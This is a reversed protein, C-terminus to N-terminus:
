NLPRNFSGSPVYDGSLSHVFMTYVRSYNQSLLDNLFRPSSVEIVKMTFVAVAKTWESTPLESATSACSIGLSLCFAEKIERARCSPFSLVGGNKLLDPPLFLFLLSVTVLHLLVVQASRQKVVIKVWLAVSGCVHRFVSLFSVTSSLQHVIMISRFSQLVVSPQTKGKGTEPKIACLCFLSHFDPVSGSCFTCRSFFFPRM